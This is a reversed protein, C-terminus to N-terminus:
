HSEPNRLSPGMLVGPEGSSNSNRRRSATRLTWSPYVGSSTAAKRSTEGRVTQRQSARTRSCPESPKNARGTEPRGGLSEWVWSFIMRRHTRWLGVSCPSSVSSQVAGLMALSISCSNPTVRFARYRLEQSVIRVEGRLLGLPHRPSAVRPLDPPPEGVAPRADFFLESALLM